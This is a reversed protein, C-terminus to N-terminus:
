LGAKPDLDLQVDVQISPLSLVLLSLVAGWTGVAVLPGQIVLDQALIQCSHSPQHSTVLPTHAVVSTLDGAVGTILLKFSPSEPGQPDTGPSQTWRWELGLVAELHPSPHCM